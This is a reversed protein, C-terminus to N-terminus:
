EVWDKKKSKIKGSIAYMSLSWIGVIVLEAVCVVLMWTRTKPVYVEMAKSNAITYLINKSAARLAQKTTNTDQISNLFPLPNLILDNGARIAQDVNMYKKGFSGDTIVTGKFGWEGRLVTTLLPYSAGTWITGIRNFSSMLGTAKGEKVPIEFAKLYVERIAQENSWTAVGERNSEQDNLAFHKMYTYVGQKTANQVFASAMKGSVVPDESYYEFNRGSFPTRHINVAPAYLGVVGLALAESSIADGIKGALETNWTSAIVVESNLQTGFIPKFIGNVGAPGDLEVTAPKDISNIEVTGYGGAGVLRKMDAVSLQQLIQEWKPDDYELGVMDVLRLGNNRVIIDEDSDRNEIVLQNLDLAKSIEDTAEKDKTRETPLTGTWDNRTVYNVDGVAYEFANTVEAKDSTRQKRVEKQAVTYTKSDLVDHANNMLKIEYNGADLVYAKENKEDYSALDDRDFRIALEESKGPELVETKGFGALVVHSKEIGGATYPATYYVQAVDKGAVEGTNTVKVKVEIEDGDEKMSTIEQKFNTYSLGYGFPYQVAKQYAAEDVKGTANDVFRTEYYRYGVYIGEAYNLFHAPYETVEEGDKKVTETINTYTFNGQNYYAPSETVDYAYTDVLRGSPNVQGTVIQGVGYAGTSGPNGIWLAADVGEDELFGLEMANSSNVLVIVKNFKEKVVNLLKREVDQLELYHKDADGNYSAMDMPLDGGEGGQRSFTVIATDSFSQADKIIDSPYSDVDLENISFDGGTLNHIDAKKKEPLNKKYYEVLQTNVELGAKELGEQLTINTAENAAGSGTGGYTLRVSSIGFLNVKSGNKLPLTSKKNELLVSGESQVETVLNKTKAVSSDVQKQNAYSPSFYLNVTTAVINLVFNLGLIMLSFLTLFFLGVKRWHSKLSKNKRFRLISFAFMGLIIVLVVGFLISTFTTSNMKVYNEPYNVEKAQVDKSFLSATVLVGMFCNKWTKM